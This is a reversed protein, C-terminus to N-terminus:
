VTRKLEVIHGDTLTYSSNEEITKQIYTTDIGWARLYALLRMVGDFRLSAAQGDKFYRRSRTEVFAECEAQIESCLMWDARSENFGFMYRGSLAPDTESPLEFIIWNSLTFDIGPRAIDSTKILMKKLEM